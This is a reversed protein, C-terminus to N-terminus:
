KSDMNQNNKANEELWKQHKEMRIRMFRRAFFMMFCIGPFILYISNKDWGDAILMYVVMITLVAGMSLWFVEMIKNYTKM